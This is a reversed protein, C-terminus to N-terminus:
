TFTLLAKLYKNKFKIASFLLPHRKQAGEPQTTM